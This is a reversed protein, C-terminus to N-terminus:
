TTGGITLYSFPRWTKRCDGRTSAMDNTMPTMLPRTNGDIDNNKTRGRSNNNNKKEVVGSAIDCVNGVAYSKTTCALAWFDYPARASGGGGPPCTSYLVVTHQLTSTAVFRFYNCQQKIYSANFHLHFTRTHVHTHTYTHAHSTSFHASVLAM